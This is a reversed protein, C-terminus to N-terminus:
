QAKEAARRQVYRRHDEYSDCGECAVGGRTCGVCPDSASTALAAKLRANEAVIREVAGLTATAPADEGLRAAKALARFARRGSDIAEAMSEIQSDAGNLRATLDKNEATLKACTADREALALTLRRHDDRLTANEADLALMKQEDCHMASPTSLIRRQRDNELRLEEITELARALREEDSRGAVPRAEIMNAVRLVDGLTDGDSLSATITALGDDLSVKVGTIKM